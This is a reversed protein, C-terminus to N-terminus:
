HINLPVFIWDWRWQAQRHLKRAEELKTTDVGPTAAAQWIAEIAQVITNGAM